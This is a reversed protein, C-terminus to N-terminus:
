NKNIRFALSSKGESNRMSIKKEEEPLKFLGERCYWNDLFLKGGSGYLDKILNVAVCGSKAITSILGRTPVNTSDKGLYM